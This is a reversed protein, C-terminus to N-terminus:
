SPAHAIRRDEPSERSIMLRGQKPLLNTAIKVTSGVVSPTLRTRRWYQPDGLLDQAHVCTTVQSRAPKRRGPLSESLFAMFITTIPPVPTRPAFTTSLSLSWPSSATAADGLVPTLVIVPSPRASARVPASTTTSTDLEGENSSSGAISNKVFDVVLKSAAAFAAPM